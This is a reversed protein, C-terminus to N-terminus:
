ENTNLKFHAFFTHSFRKNEHSVFKLDAFVLQGPQNLAGTHTHTGASCDPDM